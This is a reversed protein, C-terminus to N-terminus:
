MYMVVEMWQWVGPIIYRASTAAGGDGSYGATGTGAITNIVGSTNVIRVKQNNEDAIYVNGSGDVAVGTPGNLQATTAAIMETIVPAALVQWPVSPAPLM